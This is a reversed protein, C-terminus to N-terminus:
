EVWDNLPDNELALLWCYEWQHFEPTSSRYPNAKLCAGKQYADQAENMIERRKELSLDFRSIVEM